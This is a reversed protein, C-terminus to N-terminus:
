RLKTSQNKLDPNHTDNKPPPRKKVPVTAGGSVSDLDKDSLQAQAAPAKGKQAIEKKDAMDQEEPIPRAAEAWENVEAIM